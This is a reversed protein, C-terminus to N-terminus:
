WEWRRMTSGGTWLWAERRSGGFLQYFEDVEELLDIAVHSGLDLVDLFTYLLHLFIDPFPLFFSACAPGLQQSLLFALLSLRFLQVTIKPMTDLCPIRPPFGM